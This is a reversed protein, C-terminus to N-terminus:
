RSPAPPPMFLDPEEGRRRRRDRDLARDRAESAEIRRLLAEIRGQLAEREGQSYELDQLAAEREERTWEEPKRRAERRYLLWFALWGFLSLGLGALPVILWFTQFTM